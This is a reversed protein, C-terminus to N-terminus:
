RGLGEFNTAIRKVKQPKHTIRVRVSVMGPRQLTTHNSRITHVYRQSHVALLKDQRLELDKGWM